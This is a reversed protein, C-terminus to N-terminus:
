GCATGNTVSRAFMTSAARCYKKPNPGGTWSLLAWVRRGFGSSNGTGTTARGWTWSKTDLTYEELNRRYRQGDGNAHVVQGRRVRIVGDAELEAEHKFIWGPNDGATTVESIHYDVLDLLYVPTHGPRRSSQYGLCGVIVIRGDLLSATHFDTPPFIHEPYGYIETRDEQRRVIVDNCICFDPDYFDEHEGGISIVRGDQLQTETAGMRSFTWIPGDCVDTVNFM